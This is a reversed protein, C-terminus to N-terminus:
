GGEKTVTILSLTQEKKNKNNYVNRVTPPYRGLRYSGKGCDMM